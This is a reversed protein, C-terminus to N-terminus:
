ITDSMEQDEGALAVPERQPVVAHDVHQLDGLRALVVVARHADHGLVRQALGLAGGREDDHWM